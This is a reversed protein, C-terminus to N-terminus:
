YLIGIGPLLGLLLAVPCSLLDSAYVWRARWRLTWGIVWVFFWVYHLRLRWGTTANFTYRETIRPHRPFRLVETGPRLLGLVLVDWGADALLRTSRELPPYAAPNTYQIYVIRKRRM